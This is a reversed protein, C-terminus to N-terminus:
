TRNAAARRLGDVRSISLAMSCATLVSLLRWVMEHNGVAGVVMLLWLLAVITESARLEAVTSDTGPMVLRGYRSRVQGEPLQRLGFDTLLDRSSAVNDRYRLAAKGAASM